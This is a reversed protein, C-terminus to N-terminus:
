IDTKRSKFYIGKDNQKYGILDMIHVDADVGLNEMQKAWYDTEPTITAANNNAIAFAEDWSIFGERYERFVDRMNIVEKLKNPLLLTYGSFQGTPVFQLLIFFLGLIQSKKTFISVLRM